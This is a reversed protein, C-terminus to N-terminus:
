KGGAIFTAAKAQDKTYGAGREIKWGAGDRALIFGLYEHKQQGNAGAFSYTVTASTYAKDPVDPTTYFSDIVVDAVGQGKLYEQIVNKAKKENGSCGFSSLLLGTCLIMMFTLAPNRNIM